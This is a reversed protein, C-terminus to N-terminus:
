WIGLVKWWLGGVVLWVTINVVSLLGGIMWWTGVPVFGAGFFIPAVAAGYHTLSGFLNSFFALVFAALLPPTGLALAVVLFPAYMASIHATNSAFFYHSYFYALSLVLFGVGWSVDGVAGTVTEGLWRPVGFEGLETALMVLVAFWVFTSWAEHERAVQDWTLVGTLLLVGLAALAAAASEIGLAAGFSWAILLGIFVAVLIREERRMPGLKELEARALLRADPTQRIAPPYLWYVIAPVIALSTLGPVIAALAWLGWTIDAGQQAALQAALPNGGMSTMFMGSTVVTSQYTAFTLFAATSRVDARETSGFASRALSQVIPFVVGGSRATHSPIVPALVFDTAALSYTLGLTRHGVLSMFVYAIRRGLGTRIFTGALLFASVILWVVDHSFGDLVEELDLTGTLVTVGVAILAIAGMPLPRAVIGVITAVFIALLRWGQPEITEPRPLVLILGGVAAAILM